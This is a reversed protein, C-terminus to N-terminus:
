PSLRGGNLWRELSIRDLAGSTRSVEKGERFLIMTPIGRIGHAAAAGTEVQTNLKAFVFAGLHRAAAASFTPAFSLCPGCWPAWFDVVVPIPSSEVLRRLGAESAETVAGKLPLPKKCRGCVAAASRTSDFRNLVICENCVSYSITM